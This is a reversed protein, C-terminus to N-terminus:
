SKLEGGLQSIVATAEEYTQSMEGTSSPAFLAMESDDLIKFTKKITEEQVSRERLVIEVKERSLASQEINLKDGLYGWIARAVEDYFAKKDQDSLFKKAQKLRKTAEKTARRRKVLASDGMIREERKRYALLLFFLFVPSVYMGAFSWSTLLFDGKRNLDGTGTKIYRIDEGLLEVEEKSIGTIAPTTTSVEGEVKLVFEPSKQIIFDKKKLDFYSFEVVPLKFEGPRRPILLYEASKYGNVRNGSTSIRENMKPDFLDFDQPLNIKPVDLMKINGTGSIKITLAVPEDTETTEKDLTVELNFDGVAGTYSSPKNGVPLPKVNIKISNSEFEYPYNQYSGFFDDFFSRRQNQVRVSVNTKLKIPDVTLDGARQPFLADKKIVAANYQTGKYVEPKFQINDPLKIEQSWFGTYSPAESVTTNNITARYYLKYTATLQEGQYVNTKDVTLRLFVNDAIQEYIDQKQSQQSNGGGGQQNRVQGKVVEVKVRNSELVKGGATIKAPGISFIGEKKPRLYYSYAISRTMNGNVFQMSTSQNPGSLVQFDTFKPPQFSKGDANELTFTIQFTANTSLKSKDVSASFTQAQMMAPLCCLAAVLLVSHVSCRVGLVSIKGIKRM